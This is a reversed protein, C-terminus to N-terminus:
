QEATDSEIHPSDEVPEDTFKFQLSKGPLRLSVIQESPQAYLSYSHTQAPIDDKTFLVNGNRKDICLVSTQLGRPGRRSTPTMHRLLTLVPVESAQDLPLGFESVDVPNQWIRKGTWRDFAQIHGNILPTHFGSPASSISVEPNRSTVPTNTVLLYQKASRLVHISTLVQEADVQTVLKTSGDVLSVVMVNGSPEMVAVEDHEVLCAKAALSFTERWLTEENWVDNLQLELKDSQQNWSLVRGGLTSWRRDDVAVRRQGLHEGNFVDYVAAKDSDPAVVFLREHDGFMDSGVGFGDRQWIVDGTLPDVCVLETGKLFCFGHAQIQGCAGVLRGTSDTALYRNAGFLYNVMRSGVRQSVASATSGDTITQSLDHKWLIAEEPNKTSQLLDVAVIQNGMTLILLDGNIRYHGVAYNSASFRPEGIPISAVEKGYNDFCNAIKTRPDYLVQLSNTSRGEIQRAEFPYMKAWGPTTSVTDASEKVEIRGTKWDESPNLFRSLRVDGVKSDLLEKGTMGGRFEVDGWANSVLQYQKAAQEFRDAKEFLSALLAVAQAQTSDDSSELLQTVLMEAELLNNSEVLNSALILRVQDAQEHFGFCDLFDRLPRIEKQEVASQFHRKVTEDIRTRQDEKVNRYISSVRAMIWRDLRQKLERDVTEMQQRPPIAESTSATVSSMAMLVDFAEMLHQERLLGIAKLRLYESRQSPQDILRELELAADRNAAFDSKLASLLTKILLANTADSEKNLEYARRIAALAETHKGEQLLLEGHRALAWVDSPNDKLRERVSSRLSKDQHFTALWDVGLSIVEGKYSIINGLVYESDVEGSIVGEVLDIKLVKSDTTPLFYSNGSYFGRGSPMASKDLSLNWAADGTALSLATVENEGVMIADGDHVCAVYLMDGRRKGEGWLSKGTLLDLCFMEESEVPTLIVRGESITVTADAWRKGAPRNDQSYIRGFGRNVIRVARKYQFGWLLARTTVDVAVVAGTSTPCIMVGDAFSPSAGALRRPGDVLIDNNEVHAVQQSWELQGNSRDVAVLKIEGKIEVLSYLLDDMPLPPGLFFAESLKPEDNEGDNPGGGIMWLLAGERSLSLSVLKNYETPYNPNMIRFGGAGMQIANGAAGSFGLEHLLYVAQGDSSLQGYPADEWLRQTLENHRPPTSDPRTRVEAQQSSPFSSDNSWPYEWIRKGNKFDVALLKDPTRMLVVDNVALPQLSPLAASGVFQKRIQQVIEEDVPDNATPVRWRLNQVPLDGKTRGNRATNGRYLAAQDTQSQASAQPAGVIQTLWHLADENDRFLKIEDSDVKLNPWKAKLGVLTEKAQDTQSAYLWCTALLISLEPEFQEAAPAELLRRFCLAGALPRGRDFHYRGLLMTAEYGAKTHFYMRTVDSLKHIDGQQLAKDLMFRADAGCQLEFADRGEKPMRGLLRQAETKLSLHTQDNGTRVIFYDQLDYDFLDKNNAPVLIDILEDVADNYRREEVAREARILPQRLERPATLFVGALEEDGSNIQGISQNAILLTALLSWCVLKCLSPWSHRNLVSKM